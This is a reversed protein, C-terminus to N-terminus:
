GLKEDIIKLNKLASMKINEDGTCQSIRLICLYYYRRLYNFQYELVGDDSANLFLDSAQKAHNCIEEPSINCCIAKFYHYFASSVVNQIGTTNNVMYELLEEAREKVISVDIISKYSEIYNILQEAFIFSSDYLLKYRPIEGFYNLSTALLDHIGMIDAKGSLGIALARRSIIAALLEYSRYSNTVDRYREYYKYAKDYFEVAGSYDFTSKLSRGCLEYIKGFHMDTVENHYKKPIKELAELGDNLIDLAYDFNMNEFYLNGIEFCYYAIRNYNEFNDEVNKEFEGSSIELSKRINIADLMMVCAKDYNKNMKNVAGMFFKTEALNHLDKFSQTKSFVIKAFKHAKEIYELNNKEIMRSIRYYVVSEIRLVDITVPVKNNLEIFKDLVNLLKLQLMVERSLEIQEYLYMSIELLKETFKDHNGDIELILNGVKFIDGIINEASNKFSNVDGFNMQYQSMRVCETIYELISDISRDSKYKEYATKIILQQINDVIKYNRTVGYSHTYKYIVGKLIDAYEPNMDIAMNMLKLAKDIDKKVDIGWLYGLSLYFYTDATIDSSNKKDTIECIVEEIKETDYASIPKPLNNFLRNLESEDVDEFLVPIIKKNYKQALPYEHTVVFNDEGYNNKQLIRPTVILIFVDCERISQYIDEEYSLGLSLFEDYWITTDTMKQVSSLKDLLNLTYNRDVKRYSIFIKKKYANQIKSITDSDLLSENLFKHMKELYPITTSDEDSRLLYQLQGFKETFIDIFKGEPKEVAIPLIAIGNQYAIKIEREVIGDNSKLIENSVPIVFLQSSSLQRYVEDSNFDVEDPNDYYYINFSQVNLFEDSIEDFYRKNLKKFALSFYVKVDGSLPEYGYRTKIQLEM